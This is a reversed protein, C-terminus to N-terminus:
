LIGRSNLSQKGGGKLKTKDMEEKVEKDMDKKGKIVTGLVKLQDMIQKVDQMSEVKHNELFSAIRDIAKESASALRQIANSNLLRFWETANRILEIETNNFKYESDGFANNKCAAEKKDFAVDRFPNLEREDNMTFVFTLLNSALDKKETKDYNWIDNFARVTLTEPDIKVKRGSM